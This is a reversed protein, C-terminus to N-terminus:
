FCLFSLSLFGTTSDSLSCIWAITTWAKALFGKLCQSFFFFYCFHAHFQFSDASMLPLPLLLWHVTNFSRFGVALVAPLHSAAESAQAWGGLLKLWRHKCAVMLPPLQFYGNQYAHIMWFLIRGRWVSSKVQFFFFGFDQKFFLAAHTSYWAKMQPAWFM